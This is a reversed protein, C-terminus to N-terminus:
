DGQGAEEAPERHRRLSLPKEPTRLLRETLGLRIAEILEDVRGSELSVPHGDLPVSRRAQM